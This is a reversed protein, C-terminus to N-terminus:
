KNKRLLKTQFKKNVSTQKLNINLELKIEGNNKPILQFKQIFIQSNKLVKFLNQSSKLKYKLKKNIRM